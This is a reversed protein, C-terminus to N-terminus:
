KRPNDVLTQMTNAWNTWLALLAYAQQHNDANHPGYRLPSTIPLKTEKSDKVFQGLDSGEVGLDCANGPVECYRLLFTDDLFHYPDGSMFGKNKLRVEKIVRLGFERFNEKVKEPIKYNLAKIAYERDLNASFGFGGPCLRPELGVIRYFSKPFMNKRFVM